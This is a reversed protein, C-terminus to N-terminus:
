WDEGFGCVTQVATVFVYSCNWELGIVWGSIACLSVLESLLLYSGKGVEEVMAAPMAATM